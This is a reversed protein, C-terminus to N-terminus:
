CAPGGLSIHCDGLGAYDQPTCSFVIMQLGRDAALDLLRQLRHQRDDDASTFADDFVIPLSGDHGEALIEAMALRFAAAVQERSGGSLQSFDWTVNGFLILIARGITATMDCCVGTLRGGVAQEGTATERQTGVNGIALATGAKRLQHNPAFVGHYRHRHKRPPPVLDALRDLFEFPTLEVVGNARPRTSKRGRGPGVWNAAKHRPLVYRVRAIRGDPGRIVSLRELAFPPRACYRPLHELSRFYSPVDRDLLTIRVSADISFGSNEWALMDAAAAADLLGALRFWRIVRRRVRETLTALDAQTIPRAPLFAPPADCGADDAPPMFVGDTVCAHLHVHHNLASGFRHLFSIGGLRPRASARADADRTGGAAACLLREIEDLFIKTLAAVAAPRDALMGRLRKPVSIVWQRVPAPPMVHDVLHAATQAMHGGNCSPCLGRGKCSFAVVFGQGCGTCLARAFGFCLIGCELYGRLEEEVYGPVPREASERWALWSELHESVIKHLPTKEPRRREYRRAPRSAWPARTSLAAEGRVARSTPTIAVV